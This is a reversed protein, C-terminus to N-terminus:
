VIPKSILWDAKVIMSNLFSRKSSLLGHARTSNVPMKKVSGM